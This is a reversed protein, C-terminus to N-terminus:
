VLNKELLEVLAKRKRGGDDQVIFELEPRSFDSLTKVDAKDM